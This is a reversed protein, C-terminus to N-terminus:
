QMSTSREFSLERCVAGKGMGDRGFRWVGDIQVSGEFCWGKVAVAGGV